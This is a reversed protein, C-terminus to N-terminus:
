VAKRNEKKGFQIYHKYYEPYNSGFANRLDEYNDIYVNVDFTGIAKRREKMGYTCFHNFLKTKDTGFAKKVDANNASYYTPDFVLSYDIGKYKFSSSATTSTTPASVSGQIDAVRVWGTVQGAVGVRTKSNTIRVRGNIIQESWIYYTGTKNTYKANNASSYYVKTSKLTVKDGTDIGDDITFDVTNNSVTDKAPTLSVNVNGTVGLYNFIGQAIERACERCFEDNKLLDSETKNTMFATEVLAAARVGMKTCNVMAFDGPKIGRNTQRTNKVMQNQIAQALAISDGRYNANSHYYTGVGNATNYTKGDGYANAHISVCIIAGSEKIQAQRTSLAIDPDDTAINDDWAVKFVDIGNKELIQETYFAMYTNSYHERYGDPHRKGATDSGHGADIAVIYRMNDEKDYKTLNYDTVRKMVNKVYDHSTAFRDQKILELYKQPDTVGKLNAYNSNNIFQFYGEIGKEMSDFKFWQCTIDRYTGDSNQEKSVDTFYGSSCAIRNPRWKLGFYNHYKAKNSTGFSSELCAQAIIPSYVTIGYKPAYKRVYFAVQEIFQQKTM